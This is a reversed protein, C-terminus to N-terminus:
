RVLNLGAPEFCDVSGSNKCSVGCGSVKAEVLARGLNRERRKRMGLRM